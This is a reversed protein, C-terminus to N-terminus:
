TETKITQGIIELQKALWDIIPKGREGLHIQVAEHYTNLYKHLADVSPSYQYHTMLGMIWEMNALVLDLDGLTLAAIIDNRFGQNAYELHLSKITYAETAQNVYTAIASQNELFSSLAVQYALSARKIEPLPPPSQIIDEVLGPIFQLDPGLFYSPIYQRM